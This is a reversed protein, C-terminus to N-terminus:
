QTALVAESTNLADCVEAAVEHVQRLGVAQPVQKIEVEGRVIAEGLRAEWYSPLRGQKLLFLYEFLASTAAVKRQALARRYSTQDSM